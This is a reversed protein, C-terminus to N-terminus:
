KHLSIVLLDYCWKIRTRFPFMKWFELIRCFCDISAIPSSVIGFTKWWLIDMKKKSTNTSVTIVWQLAKANIATSIKTCLLSLIAIVLLKFLISEKQFISPNPLSFSFHVVFNTNMTHINFFMIHWVWVITTGNTKKKTKNSKM